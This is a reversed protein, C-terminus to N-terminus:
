KFKRERQMRRLCNVMSEGPLINYSCGMCGGKWSGTREGVEDDFKIDIVTFSKKLFPLWKYHYNRREKFISAKRKQVTGNNLIYFYPHVEIYRGDPVKPNEYEPVYKVWEGDERQVEHSDYILSIFPIRWSILKRTDQNQECDGNRIWISTNVIQFGYSPWDCHQEMKTKFPLKIHFEGWGLCFSIRYTSDFYFGQHILLELGFRPAFYGWKFDISDRNIRTIGLWKAWRPLEHSYM